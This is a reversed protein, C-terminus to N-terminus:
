RYVMRNRSCSHSLSPLQIRLTTITPLHKLMPISFVHFPAAVQYSDIISYTGTSRQLHRVENILDNRPSDPHTQPILAHSGWDSRFSPSRHGQNVGIATALCFPSNADADTFDLTREVPAMGFISTEFMRVKLALTQGIAPSTDM